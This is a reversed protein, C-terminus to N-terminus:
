VGGANGEAKDNLTQDKLQLLKEPVHLVRTVGPLEEAALSNDQLETSLLKKLQM